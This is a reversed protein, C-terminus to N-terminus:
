DASTAAASRLIGIANDIREVCREQGIAAMTDFLPPAFSKGTTAVRIPSFLQGPKMEIKEALARYEAELHEPEFPSVDKCLELAAVLARETMEADMKRGPLDEAAPNVNDAFFFDLTETGETLLKLREHVLPIVQKLYDRDIPRAVSDPLGGEAESREMFPLLQTILDDESMNRIYVGNMWELKESDFTAPSDNIRDISFRKVIEERAMVETDDGPSWGLLCMFNFVADPLFGLDRYELASTAGHRKSLKAKDKGLILPVHVYEPPEIGLAQHILLHRPTSSIWEDGRIVHTIGMAQDDLIHALHYTPMEDSKLIVFDDLEKLEFTIKGRVADVFSVSGHDPVKLRVTIPLGAKRSEEIEEPSRHRGRGDYRPPQKAARQRERLAHLQEPTTDDFYAHGSEILRHAADIYTQQRESQVYPGYNGGKGPGEDLGLGLWELSEFIAKEADADYRSRDTDEIRVIFQGETQQALVWCFLATRINGIHPIGTPSPAYRVRVPSTPNTM